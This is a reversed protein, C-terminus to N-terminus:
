GYKDRGRNVSYRMDLSGDRCRPGDHGRPTTFNSSYHYSQRMQQYQLMQVQQQRMMQEQQRVRERQREQEQQRVRERQREQEQQRVRERQREQEQQRVRERQREQEQQRERERQREQEQQRVRELQQSLASQLSKGVNTRLDPTGDNKLGRESRSQTAVVPPSPMSAAAAPATIASQLSKGVNTRLDPTGDNKLGRESRSQTAAVPPSPMSAAAAPATIVSQLSKGVNTRLDPTGDNKLGRESRSQTAAVPPSPMSAAAAPATIASQLSKGVNTRLDPTGDNKLGDSNRKASMENRAKDIILKADELGRFNRKDLKAVLSKYSAREAGSSSALADLIEGIVSKATEGNEGKSLSLLNKISTKITKMKNYKQIGGPKLKEPDPNWTKGQLTAEQNTHHYNEQSPYCNLKSYSFALILEKEEQSSSKNYAKTLIENPIRHCIQYKPQFQQGSLKLEDQLANFLLQDESLSCEELQYKGRVERLALKSLKRFEVSTVSENEEDFCTELNRPIIKTPSRLNDQQQVPPTGFDAATSIPSSFMESKPNAWFAFNGLIAWLFCV